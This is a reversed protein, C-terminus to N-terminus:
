KLLKREKKMEKAISSFPLSFICRDLLSGPDESHLQLLETFQTDYVKKMEAIPRWKYFTTKTM